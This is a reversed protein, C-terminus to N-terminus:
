ESQPQPDEAKHARSLVQGLKFAINPLETEPVAEAIVQIIEDMMQAVTAKDLVQNTLEELRHCSSVLKEIKLVLDGITASKLILDDDTHCRDLQTELVMRLIGVEDRLSKIAPHNAQAQIRANYKTLNYKRLDQARDRAQNTYPVDPM